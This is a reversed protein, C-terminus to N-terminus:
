TEFLTPLVRITISESRSGCTYTLTTQNTIVLDYGTNAVNPNSGEFRTAPRLNCNPNVGPDWTVRVTTGPRVLTPTATFTIEGEPVLPWGGSPPAPWGGAPPLENSPTGPPAPWGGPPPGWGGPPPTGSPPLWGGPPLATGPPPQWTDDSSSSDDSGVYTWSERFSGTDTAVNNTATWSYVTGDAQQETYTTRYSGDGFTTTQTQYGPGSFSERAAVGDNDSGSPSDSGGSFADAINGGISGSDCCINESFWNAQAVPFSLAVKSEFVSDDAEKSVFLGPLPLVIALAAIIFIHSFSLKM